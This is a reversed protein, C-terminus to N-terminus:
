RAATSTQVQHACGEQLFPSPPSAHPYLLSQADLRAQRPANQPPTRALEPRPTTSLKHPRLACRKVESRQGAQGAWWGWHWCRGQQCGVRCEGPQGRFEVIDIEGSAAWTGYVNDSPPALRPQLPVTLYLSREAM